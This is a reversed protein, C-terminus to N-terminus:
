IFKVDKGDFVFFQEKTDIREFRMGYKELASVLEAGMCVAIAGNHPHKAGIVLAKKGDFKTEILKNGM